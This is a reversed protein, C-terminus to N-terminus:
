KISSKPRGRGFRKVEPVPPTVSEYKEAEAAEQASNGESPAQPEPADETITSVVPKGHREVVPQDLRKLLDNVKSTLDANVSKLDLVAKELAATKSKEERLKEYVEPVEAPKKGTINKETPEMIEEPGHKYWEVKEEFIKQENDDLRRTDIVVKRHNWSELDMFKYTSNPQLQKVKFSKSRYLKYKNANTTCLAGVLDLDDSVYVRFGDPSDYMELPRKNKDEHIRPRGGDYRVFMVKENM